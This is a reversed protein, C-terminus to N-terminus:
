QEAMERARRERDIRGGLRLAVIWLVTFLAGMVYMAPVITGSAILAVQIVWGAGYAWPKRMMGSLAICVVLLAVGAWLPGAPRAQGDANGLGFAVLGAFFAIFGELALITAAFQRKASRSRVEAVQPGSEPGQTNTM